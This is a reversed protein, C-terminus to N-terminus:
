VSFESNVVVKVFNWVLDEFETPIIPIKTFRTVGRNKAACRGSSVTEEYFYLLNSYGYRGFPYKFFRFGTWEPSFLKYVVECGSALEPSGSWRKSGRKELERLGDEEKLWFSRHVVDSVGGFLWWEGGFRWFDGGWFLKKMAFMRLEMLEHFGIAVLLWWRQLKEEGERERNQKNQLNCIQMKLSGSSMLGRAKKCSDGVIKVGKKFIIKLEQTREKVQKEFSGM